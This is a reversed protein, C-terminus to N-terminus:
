YVELTAKVLLDTYAIRWNKDLLGRSKGTDNRWKNSGIHKKYTLGFDTDFHAVIEPGYYTYTWPKISGDPYKMTTHVTKKYKENAIWEISVWLGNEPMLINYATVDFTNWSKKKTASYTLSKELLDQGPIGNKNEYIRVRFPADFMEDGMYFHLTKLYASKYNDNKLYIASQTGPNQLRQNVSKWKHGSKNLIGVEIERPKKNSVKVENLQFVLPLLEYVLQENSQLHTIYKDAYGVCSIKLTDTQKGKSLNLEFVGDQNTQAGIQAKFNEINVYAIAQKTNADLVKGALKLQANAIIPFQLLLYIIKKM